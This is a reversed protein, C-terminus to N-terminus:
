NTNIAVLENNKDNFNKSLLTNQSKLSNITEANIINLDKIKENIEDIEETKLNISQELKSKENDFETKCEIWKRKKETGGKNKPCLCFFNFLPSWAKFQIVGVGFSNSFTNRHNELKWNSGPEWDRVSRIMHSLPLPSHPGILCNLERSTM